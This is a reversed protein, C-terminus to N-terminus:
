RCVDAYTPLTKLIGADVLAKATFDFDAKNLSEGDAWKIRTYWDRADDLKLDYVSAITQAADPM